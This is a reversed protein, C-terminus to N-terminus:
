FRSYRRVWKTVTSLENGVLNTICLRNGRVNETEFCCFVWMFKAFCVKL